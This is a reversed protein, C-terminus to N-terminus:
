RNPSQAAHVPSEQNRLMSRYIQPALGIGGTASLAKGYEGLLMGRWTDQGTAADGLLGEGKVGEFMAGLLTQFVNAELAQATEWAKRNQPINKPLDGRAIAKRIDIAFNPNPTIANISM